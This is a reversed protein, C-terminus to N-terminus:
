NSNNLFEDLSIELNLDNFKSDFKGSIFLENFLYIYLLQLIFDYYDPLNDIIESVEKTNLFYKIFESKLFEIIINSYNEVLYDVDTSGGIKSINIQREKGLVNKVEKKYYKKKRNIFGLSKAIAKVDKSLFPYIGQINHNNLMIGSKKLIFDINTDFRIKSYKIQFKNLSKVRESYKISKHELFKYYLDGLVTQKILQRFRIILIPSFIYRYSDLQQDACDGLFITKLSNNSILSALEYQLFIGEEYVYGDLKWVIEPLFELINLRITRCKHMVNPYRDACKKAVPIENVLKGGITLTTIQNSTNKALHHLILNTDFGGSLTTCLNENASLNVLNEISEKISKILNKKAFQRSFKKEKKELAYIKINQSKYDVAIYHGPILKNINEILTSEDPIITRYFLFNIAANFNLKRKCHLQTLLEKLSTSFIFQNDNNTYYLPLNSGYEDQFIYARKKNSDWIFITFIGDLDYIFNPGKLNYFNEIIATDANSFIHNENKIKNLNSIYGIIACIINTKDNYFINKNNISSNHIRNVHLDLNDTIFITPEKVTKINNSKWNIKGTLLNM